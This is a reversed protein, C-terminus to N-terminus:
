KDESWIGTAISYFFARDDLSPNTHKLAVILRNIAKLYGLRYDGNDSIESYPMSLEDLITAIDKKSLM